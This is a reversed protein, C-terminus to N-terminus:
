KKGKRRTINHLNTRPQDSSSFDGISSRLSLPGGFASRSSTSGNASRAPPPVGFASHSSISGNASRAPPPGSKKINFLIANRKLEESVKEREFGMFREREEALEQATPSKRENEGLIESDISSKSNDSESSSPQRLVLETSNGQTKKTNFWGSVKEFLKDLKFSAKKSKKTAISSRSRSSESRIGFVSKRITRSVEKFLSEDKEFHIKCKTLIATSAEIYRDYLTTFPKFIYRRATKRTRNFYTVTKTRFKVFSIAANFISENQQLIGTIDDANYKDDKIDNVLTTKLQEYSHTTNDRIIRLSNILKGIEINSKMELHTKEINQKQKKMATTLEDILLDADRIINQKAIEAEKRINTTVKEIPDM